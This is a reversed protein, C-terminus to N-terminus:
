SRSPVAGPERVYLTLGAEGVGDELVRWGLRTYFDRLAPRSVLYVSKVGLAGCRRVGEELLAVAIGQKRVDEDVWLAALWPTLDPRSAEDNDIVLVNGCPKGDREAVLAFPIRSEAKLFPELGNRVQALPVGKQRWSQNWVREAVANAHHPCERLDLYEPM